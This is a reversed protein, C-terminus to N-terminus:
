SEPKLFVSPKEEKNKRFCWSHQVQFNNFDLLSTNNSNNNNSNNNNNTPKHQPQTPKKKKSSRDSGERLYFYEM